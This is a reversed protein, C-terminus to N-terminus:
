FLLYYAFPVLLCAAGLLAFLIAFLVVGVDIVAQAAPHREPLQFQVPVGRETCAHSGPLHNGGADTRSTM